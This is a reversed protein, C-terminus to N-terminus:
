LFCYRRMKISVREVKISVITRKPFSKLEADENAFTKVVRIGSLNELAATNVDAIREQNTKYSKQLKRYFIVSYIVIILLIAIILTALRWNIYLLIMISGTSQILYVLVMIPVHHSVEAIGLLDNTLRSMLEGTNNNDYFSFTLKQYHAFIDKRLDREIKAGMVHGMWDNFLGCFTQIIIIAIMLAGTRLIESLVNSVGSALINGTIHRVCLPLFLSMAATIVAACMNATFLGKYPKYQSIFKRLYETKKKRM